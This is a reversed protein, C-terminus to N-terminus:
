ILMFYMGSSRHFSGRDEVSTHPLTPPPLLDLLGLTWPNWPGLTGLYRLSLSLYSSSKLSPGDQKLNFDMKQVFARGWLYILCWLVLIYREINSCRQYNNIVQLEFILIKVGERVLFKKVTVCM